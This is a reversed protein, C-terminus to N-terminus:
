QPAELKHIHKAVTRVLKICDNAQKKTALNEKPPNQSLDYDGRHAIAHRRQTFSDLDARLKDENMKADIAVDHFINQFGAIQLLNEIARTGQFSRKEFDSRFAKEVRELLDDSRAAALLVNPELFKLIEASLSAPISQSKTALLVRTRTIVFDRVFADLASIALVIAARHADTTYKEPKGVKGHVAEHLRVLNQAREVCLEFVAFSDLAEQVVPVAADPVATESVASGNNAVGKGKAEKIAKVMCSSCDLIPIGIGPIAGTTYCLAESNSVSREVLYETGCM